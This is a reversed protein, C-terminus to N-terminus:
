TRPGPRRGSAPSRSASGSRDAGPAASRRLPRPAPTTPQCGRGTLRTPGVHQVGGSPNRGAHAQVTQEVGDDLVGGERFRDGGGGVAVAHVDVEDARGRGAGEGDGGQGTVGAAGHEGHRRRSALRLVQRGGQAGEERGLPDHLVRRPLRQRVLPEAGAAVGHAAAEGHQPAQGVGAGVVGPGARDGDDDRGHAGHELRLDLPQAVQLRDGQPGTLARVEVLDDLGEGGGRVRAHLQDLLAALEGYAAADQVDERGGLLVGEADLEPTVVDLLDAVELDGVLPGQLDGLLPQAGTLQQERVVHTLPRPHERLLM